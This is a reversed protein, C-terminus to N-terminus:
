LNPLMHPTIILYVLAAPLTAIQKNSLYIQPTIGMKRIAASYSNNHSIPHHNTPTFTIFKKM